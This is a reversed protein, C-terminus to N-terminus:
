ALSDSAASGEDRTGGGRMKSSIDLAPERNIAADPIFDGSAQARASHFERECREGPYVLRRVGGALVRRDHGLRHPDHVVGDRLDSGVGLPVAPPVPHLEPHPSIVTMRGHAVVLIAGTKKSAPYIRRQRMRPSEVGGSINGDHDAPVGHSM